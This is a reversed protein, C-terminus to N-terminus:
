FEVGLAAGFTNVQVMRKGNFPLKYFLDLKPYCKKDKKSGYLDFSAKFLIQHGTWEELSEATNAIDSSFNNTLLTLRDEAHKLHQYAVRLCVYDSVIELFLNYGQTFGYDKYARCKALFLLDTQNIDTKIRRDKTTGFLQWFQVAGGGRVHCGWTIDLGVGFPMGWAGDNGLPIDFAKDQNIKKGSPISIGFNGHVRVNSIWGRNQPYDKMAKFSFIIDGIGSSTWGTLDLNGLKNTLANLQCFNAALGKKVLDDEMRSNKTLSEWNVNKLKMYYFPVYTALSFYKLFEYEFDLGVAVYDLNSTPLFHGRDDIDNAINGVKAALKGIESTPSFGRLMALSDQNKNWIQLVDVNDGCQNRGDVKISGEAIVTPFFTKCRLPRSAWFNVDFIGLINIPFLPYLNVCFFCVVILSIKKFM